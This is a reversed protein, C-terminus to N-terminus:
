IHTAHTPCSISLSGDHDGWWLSCSIVWGLWVRRRARVSSARVTRKHRVYVVGVGMEVWVAAPAVFGYLAKRVRLDDRKREEWCNLPASLSREKKRSASLNKECRNGPTTPNCV